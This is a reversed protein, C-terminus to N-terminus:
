QLRSVKRKRPKTPTTTTAIILRLADSLEHRKEYSAPTAHQRKEIEREICAALELCVQIALKMRRGFEQKKLPILFSNFQCLRFVGQFDLQWVKTEDKYTCSGFVTFDRPPVVERCISRIQSIWSDRMARALKFEDKCQKDVGPNHIQSAEAIYIQDTGSFALGDSYQGKDMSDLLPDKDLNKRAQVGTILVELHRSEIRTLTLAGRIFSWTLDTFGERENINEPIESHFTFYHTYSMVVSFMYAAIPDEMDEKKIAKVVDDYSNSIFVRESIAQLTPWKTNIVPIAAVRRAISSVGPPLEKSFISDPTMDAIGDRVLSFSKLNNARFGSFTAVLDTGDCSWSTSQNLTQFHKLNRTPDSFETDDDHEDETLGEIDDALVPMRNIVSSADRIFRRNNTNTLPTRTLTPLPVLSVSKQTKVNRQTRGRRLEVRAQPVSSATTPIATSSSTGATPIARIPPLVLNPITYTSANSPIHLPEDNEGLTTHARKLPQAQEPEIEPLSASRSEYPRSTPKSRRALANKFVAQLENQVVRHEFGKLANRNLLEEADNEAIALNQEVSYFLKLARAFGQVDRGLTKFDQLRELETLFIEENQGSILFDALDWDAVATERFYTKTEVSSPIYTTSGSYKPRTM